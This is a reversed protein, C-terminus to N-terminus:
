AHLPRIKEASPLSLSVVPPSLVRGTQVLLLLSTMFCPFTEWNQSEVPRCLLVPHQSSLHRTSYFVSGLSSASTKPAAVQVPPCPAGEVAESVPVEQSCPCPWHNPPRLMLGLAIRDKATGHVQRALSQRQEPDTVGRKKKKKKKRAKESFSIDLERGVTTSQFCTVTQNWLDVPPFSNQKIIFQMASPTEGVSSESSLHLKPRPITDSHASISM